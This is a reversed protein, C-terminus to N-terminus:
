EINILNLHKDSTIDLDSDRDLQSINVLSNSSKVFPTILNPQITLILISFKCTVTPPCVFTKLSVRKVFENQEM